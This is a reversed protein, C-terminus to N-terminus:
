ANQSGRTQMPIASGPDPSLNPGGISADTFDFSLATPDPPHWSLRYETHMDRSKTKAPVTLMTNSSALGAQQQVLEAATTVFVFSETEMRELSTASTMRTRFHLSSSNIGHLERGHDHHNPFPLQPPDSSSPFYPITTSLPHSSRITLIRHSIGTQM